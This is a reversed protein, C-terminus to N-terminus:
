KIVYYLSYVICYSSAFVVIAFPADALFLALLAFFFGTDLLLVRVDGLVSVLSLSYAEADFRCFGDRIDNPTDAATRTTTTDM